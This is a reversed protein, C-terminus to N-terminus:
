VERCGGLVVLALWREKQTLLISYFATSHRYFAGESLLNCKRATEEYSCDNRWGRHGHDGELTDLALKSDCREGCEAVSEDHSWWTAPEFGHGLWVTQTSREALAGGIIGCAWVGEARVRGGRTSGSSM